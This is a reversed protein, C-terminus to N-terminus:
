TQRRRTVDRFVVISGVIRGSDTQVPALSQDIPIKNGSKSILYINEPLSIEERLLGPAPITVSANTDAYVSQFVERLPRGKADKQTWGTLSVAIPNLFRVRGRCDTAIVGDGISTLTAMMFAHDEKLVGSLWAVFMGSLTFTGLR